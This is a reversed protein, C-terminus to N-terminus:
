QAQRWMEFKNKYSAYKENHMAQVSNNELQQYCTNVHNLDQSMVANEEM